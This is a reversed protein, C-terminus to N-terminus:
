TAPGPDPESARGPAPPERKMDSHLEDLGAELRQRHRELDELSKTQQWESLKLDLESQRRLQELRIRNRERSFTVANVARGIGWVGAVVVLAFGGVLVLTVLARGV